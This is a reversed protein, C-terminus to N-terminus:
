ERAVGVEWAKNRETQKGETVEADGETVEAYPRSIKRGERKWKGCGSEIDDGCAM